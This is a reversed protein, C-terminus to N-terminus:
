DYSPPVEKAVRRVAAAISATDAAASLAFLGCVNAYPKFQEASAALGGTPVGPRANYKTLMSQQPVFVSNVSGKAYTYRALSAAATTTDTVTTTDSAESAPADHAPAAVTDLRSFVGGHAELIAQAACSDWRSVGRDQIYVATPLELVLLAKNGAGGAPYTAYGLEAQVAQLFRSTGGNSCLFAGVVPATEPTRLATEPTRLESRSMGERHCGLAWSRQACLPRYVLGGVAQGAGDAFGVCISCQGGLGTCFERTGDIPDIFATLSALTESPPITSALADMRARLKIIMPELAAPAEIEAARFPGDGEISISAEDEEGVIAGVRGSLLRM